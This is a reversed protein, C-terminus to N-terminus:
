SRSLEASIALVEATKAFTARLREALALGVDDEFEVCASTAWALLRWGDM